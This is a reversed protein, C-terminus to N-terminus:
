PHGDLTWERQLKDDRLQTEKMAVFLESSVEGVFKCHTIRVPPKGHTSIIRQLGIRLWRIPWKRPGRLSRSPALLSALNRSSNGLVPKLRSRAPLAWSTWPWGRGIMQADNLATDVFLRTASM